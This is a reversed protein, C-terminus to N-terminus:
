PLHSVDKRAHNSRGQNGAWPFRSRHVSPRLLRRSHTDTSLFFRITNVSIGAEAPTCPGPSIVIADPNKTEIGSLSIKDNRFVEVVQQMEQLMQVLNYTFSDYNDILLIM